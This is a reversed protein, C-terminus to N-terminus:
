IQWGVWVGESLGRRFRAQHRALIDKSRGLDIIRNGQVVVSGNEIVRRDPDVTILIGNVILLDAM